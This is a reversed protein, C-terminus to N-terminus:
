RNNKNQESVQPLPLLKEGTVNSELSVERHFQPSVDREKKMRGKGRFEIVSVVHIIIQENM